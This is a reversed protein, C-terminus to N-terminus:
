VHIPTISEVFLPVLAMIVTYQVFLPLRGIFKVLSKEDFAKGLVCFACKTVVPV